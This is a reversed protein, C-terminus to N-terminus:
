AQSSNYEENNNMDDEILNRLYVSRPVKKHQAIWDLYSSIAPSVFFNFRVDATEQAYDLSLELMEGLTLDDYSLIQLKDNHIGKLAHPIIGSDKKYLVVVPKSMNLATAVEFGVSVAPQSVEFVIVDAKKIWTLIKRAYLEAEAATEGEVDKPTREIVHTTVLEHGQKQILEIIKKYDERNGRIVDGM